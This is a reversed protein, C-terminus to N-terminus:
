IPPPPQGRHITPAGFGALLSCSAAFSSAQPLAHRSASFAPDVLGGRKGGRCLRRPELVRALIFCDIPRASSSRTRGFRCIPREIAVDMGGSGDGRLPVPFGAFRWFRWASPLLAWWCWAPRPGPLALALLCFGAPSGVGGPILYGCWPMAVLAGAGLVLILLGLTTESIELRTMLAPIQLAWGGLLFGNVFFAAAVAWRGRRVAFLRDSDTMFLDDVLLLGCM